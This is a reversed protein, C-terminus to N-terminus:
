RKGITKQVMIGLYSYHRNKYLGSNAIKGLSFNVDPGVLLLEKTHRSISFLLGATLKVQTKNFLINNRYYAGTLTDFQLANSGVLQAISIGTNLYVPLKNQKGLKFRLALPLEIFHFHNKYRNNDGSRYFYTNRSFTSNIITDVRGGIMMASNYTRYNLGILFSAKPSITRQVFAGLVIGTGANMKSPGPIYTVPSATGTSQIPSAYVKQEDGNGSGVIGLFGNRTAAAGFSFNFGIKWKNKQKLQLSRKLANEKKNGIPLKIAVTDQVLEKVSTRDNGVSETVQGKLLIHNQVVIMTGPISLAANISDNTEGEMDVPNVNSIVMREKGETKYNLKNANNIDDKRDKPDVTIKTNNALDDVTVSAAPKVPLPSPAQHTRTQNIGTSNKMVRIKDVALNKGFAEPKTADGAVQINDSDNTSQTITHQQVQNAKEAVIGNIKRESSQDLIIFTASIILVLFLFVIVLIRRNGKRKTITVALKQWVEDSPKLKLEEIKQQVQKEFNNEQM